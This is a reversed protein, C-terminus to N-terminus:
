LEPINLWEGVLHRHCFDSPKEYCCLIVNDGILDLITQKDLTKLYDNFQETYAVADIEGEKYQRLLKESPALPLCVECHCNRPAYRAICIVKMGEPFKRWNAFYSTYRM